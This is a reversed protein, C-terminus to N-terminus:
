TSALLVRASPQAHRAPELVNVTGVVNVSWTAPADKWSAAVSSEAALHVVCRTRSTKVAESVAAGDLVDVGAAVASEGALPGLHTGVFGEAGTILVPKM